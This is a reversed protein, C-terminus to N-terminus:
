IAIWSEKLAKEPSIVLFLFIKISHGSGLFYNWKLSDGSKHTFDKYM